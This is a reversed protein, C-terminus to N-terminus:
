SYKSAIEEFMSLKIKKIPRTDYTRLPIYKTMLLLLEKNAHVYDDFGKQGVARVYGPYDLICLFLAGIEDYQKKSLGKPIHSKIQPWSDLARMRRAFIEIKPLKIKKKFMLDGCPNKILLNWIIAEVDSVLWEYHKDIQNPESREHCIAGYDIIYWQYGTATKRYMINGPHLDRHLWGAKRMDSLIEMLQILCSKKQQATLKSKIESLTGDLIPLYALYCCTGSKNKEQLDKKHKGEAWKPIPQRHKCGDIIGHAVLRMLGKPHKKVYENFIVQRMYSSSLDYSEDPSFKEIKYVCPTGDIDAVYTTGMVGEGLKKKIHINM